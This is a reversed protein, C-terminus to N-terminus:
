YANSTRIDVSTSKYMTNTDACNAIPRTRPNMREKKREIYKLSCM